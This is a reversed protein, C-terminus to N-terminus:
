HSVTIKIVTKLKWNGEDCLQLKSLKYTFNPAKLVEKQIFFGMFWWLIGGMEESHFPVTLGDIQFKILFYNLRAGVSRLLYVSWSSLIRIM